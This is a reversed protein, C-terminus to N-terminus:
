GTIPIQKKHFSHYIMTDLVILIDMFRPLLKKKLKALKDVKMKDGRNDKDISWVFRKVKINTKLLDKMGTYIIIIHPIAPIVPKKHDM